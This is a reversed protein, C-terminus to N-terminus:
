EENRRDISEKAELYGYLSCLNKNKEYERYIAEAEKEDYGLMVLRDITVQM